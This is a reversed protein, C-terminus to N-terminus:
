RDEATPGWGFTGSEEPEGTREPGETDAGDTAVPEPEAARFPDNPLAGGLDDSADGGPARGDPDDDVDVAPDERGTEARESTFPVSRGTQVDVPPEALGRVVVSTGRGDGAPESGARDPDTPTAKAGGGTRKGADGEEADMAEGGTNAAPAVEKATDAAPTVEEAVDRAATRERLTASAGRGYLAHVVVRTFFVVVIGAILPVFPAGIAYGTLLTAAALLWAVAYDGTFAVEAVLTPRFGDRLRGTAAFAALAAPRVYAFVLLYAGTMLLLFGGLVGLVAGAATPTESPGAAVPEALTEPDVVGSALFTGAVGAAALAVALPLLYGVTLLASKLGDRYLRGWAVFPPAGDTNETEIGGAVVRLYYGRAVLAPALALPAALVALPFLLTVVLWVPTVTWALLTLVTGVVLTGAADASRTPTALAGRLM